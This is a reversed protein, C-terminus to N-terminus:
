NGSVRWVEEEYFLFFLLVGCCGLRKIGGKVCAIIIRVERM